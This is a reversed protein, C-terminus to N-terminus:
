KEDETNTAEDESEDDPGEPPEGPFDSLEDHEVTEEITVSSDDNSASETLILEDDDEFNVNEEESVGDLVESDVTESEAREEEDALSEPSNPSDSATVDAVNTLSTVGENEDGVTEDITDVVIANKKRSVLKRSLGIFPRSIDKMGWVVVMMGLGVLVGSFELSSTLVPKVMAIGLSAALVLLMLAIQKRLSLFLGLLGLVALGAFLFLNVQSRDSLTLVLAEQGPNITSFHLSQQRNTPYIDGVHYGATVEDIVQHSDFNRDNNVIREQLYELWSGELHDDWDGSYDLLVSNRPLEVGVFIQNVAEVGTFVPVSIMNAKHKINYVLEVVFVEGLSQTTLPIFYSGEQDGSDNIELGVSSGNIRLPDNTLESNPPMQLAIRQDVSRMRFVSHVVANGSRGLQVRVYGMEVATKEIEKLDFRNVQLGLKWDNGHFEMALTGDATNGALQIDHQPDIQRLNEPTSEPDTVQSGESDGDKLGIPAVDLNEAKKLVIQGWSRDVNQPALRDVAIRDVSEADLQELPMNWSLNIQVAGLLERNSSLEWAVYGAAVDEPAPEIVNETIFNSSDNRIEDALSIPVDLRFTKVGSYRINYHLGVNFKVEGQDVDAVILQGVEIHPKRREVDFVPAFAEEAYRFGQAPRANQRISLPSIHEAQIENVAVSQGGATQKPTLRLGEPAIILVRGRVQEVSAPVVRALELTYESAVGTPTVLNDDNHRKELGLQLAVLGFAKRSFNVRYVSPANEVVHHNEVVVPQYNGAQVGHVERVTYGKPVQYEVQFIGAREVNFLTTVDVRLQDELVHIDVFEEASVRPQLKEIKLVLEYPPAAYRYLFDWEGQQNGVQTSDVQLLGTRTIVDARLDGETRVMVLGQQRSVGLAEIEPVTVEVAANQMGVELDFRELELSINQSVTAPEFLEVNIVQANKELEVDWRRVNADFVGAIKQGAPIRIKLETLESRTIAYTLTAQTRQSGEGIIVNQRTQVTALATLGSAGESKPTWDIQVQPALGFFAILVTETPVQPTPADGNDVDAGDRTETAAVLPRVNVKVGPDKITIKWRNISAQPAQFGVQNLGPSKAYTKAYKLELTLSDSQGQQQDILLFYGQGPRFVIRANDEGIKASSIAADALRLPIEHWGKGLLQIELQATVEMVDGRVEASSEISTILSRLPPGQEVETSSNKRASDWLQQFQEYPLFVGRAPKEFVQPLKEYPVYIIQEKLPDKIQEAPAAQEEPAQEQQPAEAVPQAFSFKVILLSFVLGLLFRKSNM